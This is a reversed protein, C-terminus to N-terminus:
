NIRRLTVTIDDYGTFSVQGQGQGQSQGGIAGAIAISTFSPTLIYSNYTLELKVKAPQGGSSGANIASYKGIYGAISITGDLFFEITEGKQSASTLKPLGRQSTQEWKGILASVTPNTTASSANGCGSLLLGGLGLVIILGVLGVKSVLAVGPWRRAFTKTHM